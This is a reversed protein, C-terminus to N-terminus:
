TAILGHTRCRALLANLQTIASAADTADAVAAGQAGVVQTTNVKYVKGSALDMHMASTVTTSSVSLGSGTQGNLLRALSGAVDGSQLTAYGAGVTAEENGSVLLIAGRASSAAGGGSV